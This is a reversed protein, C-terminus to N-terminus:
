KVHQQHEEVSYSYIQINDWYASAFNDLSEWITDNIYWQFDECTNKTRYQMVLPEFHGYVTHFEVKHEDGEKVHVLNYAGRVDM